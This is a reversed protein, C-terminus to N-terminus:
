SRKSIQAPRNNSALPHSIFLGKNGIHLVSLYLLRADNYIKSDKGIFAELLEPGNIKRLM